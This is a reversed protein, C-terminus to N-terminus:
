FFNVNFWGKKGDATLAIGCAVTKYNGKEKGTDTGQVPEQAKTTNPSLLNDFGVTINKKM